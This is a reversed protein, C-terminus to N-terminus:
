APKEIPIYISLTSAPDDPSFTESYREFYPGTAHRYGSTPLWGNYIADWTQGLNPITTEFVAYTNASVGWREMGEPLEDVQEVSCGAMYDFQSTEVDYHDMVGYSVGPEALHPVDDMRPAFRSWLKSIEPTMPTARLLMGVVTFAPKTVIQPEM